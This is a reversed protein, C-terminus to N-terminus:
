GYRTRERSAGRSEGAHVDRPTKPEVCSVLPGLAERCERVSRRIVSQVCAAKGRSDRAGKIISAPARSRPNRIGVAGM